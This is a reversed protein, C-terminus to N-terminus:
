RRGGTYRAFKARCVEKLVAPMFSYYRGRQRQPRGTIAGHGSFSALVSRVLKVCVETNRGRLEFLPMDRPVPVPARAVIAGDDLRANVRHLTTVLGGFDGHYIAWLHTDLGRYRQPDGGHLNVMGGPCVDIVHQKLRGTGFVVVADPRVAALREVAAPENASGVELTDAFDDLHPERGGFWTRREYEDRQEEFPHRTEFPPATGNREAVVLTPARFRALERVFFCHHSTETTLVAVNM